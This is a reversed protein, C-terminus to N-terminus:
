AGTLHHQTQFLITSKPVLFDLLMKPCDNGLRRNGWCGDYENSWPRADMSVMLKNFLIIYYYLVLIFFIRLWLDEWSCNVVNVLLNASKRSSKSTGEEPFHRTSIFPSLDFSFTAPDNLTYAAAFSRWVVPRKTFMVLGILPQYYPINRNMPFTYVTSHMFIILSQLTAVWNTRMSQSDRNGIPTKPGNFAAFSENSQNLM